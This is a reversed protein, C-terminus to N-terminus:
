INLNKRFGGAFSQLTYRRETLHAARLSYSEVEIHAITRIDGLEDSEEVVEDEMAAMVLITLRMCSYMRAM